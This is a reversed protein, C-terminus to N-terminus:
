LDVGRDVAVGLDGQTVRNSANSHERASIDLNAFLKEEIVPLDLGGSGGLVVHYSWDRKAVM